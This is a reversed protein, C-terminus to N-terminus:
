GVLNELPEDAALRSLNRALIDARRDFYAPTHGANHPTIQVNDFGWLPHDEPLPEPDTVDLTAGDIRNWRLATVLADTDIVGGRAVNVIWAHSPLTDFASRDVLGRTVPTLPCALVLWDVAAFLESAEDYGYVTEVPGGKEPSHRVALREVGFPELRRAVATGIAGLGVIGVTSGQLERCQYSRWERRNQRRNARHFGRAASLMSGVAYESVNPAHVGAANTVQVGRDNLRDLPLHDTGAYLCAFLQLADAESLWRDLRQGGGTIVDATRAASREDAPTRAATVTHEPLRERLKDAYEGTDMGHVSGRTCLVEM